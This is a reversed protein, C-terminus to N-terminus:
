SRLSDDAPAPFNRGTHVLMKRYIGLTQTVITTDDFGAEEVKGEHPPALGPVFNPQVRLRISRM